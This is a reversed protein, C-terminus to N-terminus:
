NNQEQGRLASHYQIQVPQDVELILDKYVLMGKVPCKADDRGM